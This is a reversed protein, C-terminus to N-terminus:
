EKIESIIAAVLDICGVDKIFSLIDAVTKTEDFSRSKHTKVWNDETIQYSVPCTVVITKM